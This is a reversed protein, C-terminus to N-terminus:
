EDNANGAEVIVADEAAFGFAVEGPEGPAANLELVRLVTGAADIEHETSEGLYHSRLRRGTFKNPLSAAAEGLRISEPRLSLRVAAGSSARGFADIAVVRGFATQVPVMTGMPMSPPVDGAVFNTEGLFDAVFASNPRAYVERPRGIQAIRGKDMVALRDATSLAEKQDHTV